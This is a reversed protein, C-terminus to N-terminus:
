TNSFMQYSIVTLIDSVCTLSFFSRLRYHLFYEKVKCQVTTKVKCWVRKVLGPVRGM